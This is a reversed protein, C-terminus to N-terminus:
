ATCGSDPAVDCVCFNEPLINLVASISRFQIRRVISTTVSQEKAREPSSNLKRPSGPTACEAVSRAGGRAVKEGGSRPETWTEDHTACEAVSRAGGRAVKEGGSRPETWTEDDTAYETVRKNSEPKTKTYDEVNLEGM